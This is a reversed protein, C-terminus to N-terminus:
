LGGRFCAGGREATVRSESERKRKWKKEREISYVRVVSLRACGVFWLRPGSVVGVAREVEDRGEEGEEAGEVKGEDNFCREEKKTEGGGGGRRGTKEEGAEETVTLMCGSNRWARDPLRVIPALPWCGCCCCPWPWPWLWPGWPACSVALGIVPACARNSPGRLGGLVNEVKREHRRCRTVAM